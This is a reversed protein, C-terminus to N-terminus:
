CFTSPICSRVNPYKTILKIILVSRHLVNTRADCEICDIMQSKPNQTSGLRGVLSQDGCQNDVHMRCYSWVITPHSHDRVNTGNQNNMNIFTILAFNRQVFVCFAFVNSRTNDTLHPCHSRDVKTTTTMGTLRSVRMNNNDNLQIDRQKNTYGM